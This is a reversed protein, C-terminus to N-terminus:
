LLSLQRNLLRIFSLLLSLLTILFYNIYLFRDEIAPDVSWTGGTITDTIAAVARCFTVNTTVNIKVNLDGRVQLENTINQKWTKRNLSPHIFTRRRIM